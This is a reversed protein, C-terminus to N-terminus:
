FGVAIWRLPNTETLGGPTGRALTIQSTSASIFNAFNDINPGSVVATVVANLFANPFQVPFSQTVQTDGGIAPTTGWQIILGGPLRQYGTESLGQLGGANFAGSITTADHNHSSDQVQASLTVDAGGSFSVSGVLDGGLSITRATQLTSATSANGILPGTVSQATVDGLTASGQKIADSFTIPSTGLSIVSSSIRYQRGGGVTGSQVYVARGLVFEAVTNADNARVWSGAATVYIGNAAPSAQDKVLVRSASTLEGDITQEGALTIPATTAVLVNPFAARAGSLVDDIIDLNDNIKTGWTDTSAGVEPKTLSFNSTLTDAM